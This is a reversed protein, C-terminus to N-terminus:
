AHHLSWAAGAILALALWLILARLVLALARDIDASHPQPGAGLVPRQHLAGHYRAAGGLSLALAGAGAAMVPGANPSEWAGAQTRWSHLASATRGCLAYSLAALRAPILNMVDDLRAAARGFYLYRANRYGWMADLTNVLRYAVVGPAGGVAFWFLAGFIADSGNELVSEVAARAVATEDMDATERSVIRGVAARGAALSRKLAERVTIAHDRLSRHGIALWLVAADFLMHTPAFVLSHAIVAVVAVPPLVVLLLALAGLLFQAVPSQTKNNKSAPRLRAETASAWRGFGILPHLRAPEGFAADIVVALTMTLATALVSNM